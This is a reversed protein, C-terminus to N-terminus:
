AKRAAPAAERYGDLGLEALSDATLLRELLADLQEVSAIGQVQEPV